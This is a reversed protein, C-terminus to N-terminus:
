YWITSSIYRYSFRYYRYGKTSAIAIAINAFSPVYLSFIVLNMDLTSFGTKETLLTLDRFDYGEQVNIAMTLVSM